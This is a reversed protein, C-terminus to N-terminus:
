PLAMNLMYKVLLTLLSIGYQASLTSGLWVVPAACRMTPMPEWDSDSDNPDEDVESSSHLLDCRGYPTGFRARYRRTRRGYSTGFRARCQGAM